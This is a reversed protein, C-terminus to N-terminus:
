TPRTPSWPTSAPARPCPRSCTARSARHRPAAVGSSSPTPAPWRAPTPASLRDGLGLGPAARRRHDRRHLGLRHLPGLVRSPADKPLVRLVAEVLLETEPRPILVRPDVAFRRGYFERAGTLYQTPEGACAGSSSRATPPSSTRRSRGTWTRRLAEGPRSAARPRAPARRHAAARRRAHKEFHQRDDLRAGQSHDLERARERRADSVDAAKLAEAQFYTRCAGIVDDIDGAMIAPCTTAPSGSATIPSATRRSTTPASRRAATAPASRAAACRTASTAAAEGAGDRLAQRAADRMAMARNKLQSKEQQCKVVIGTPKHTLRVASDTTNVSQGGAGTSRMVQM